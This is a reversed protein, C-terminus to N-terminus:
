KVVRKIPIKSLVIAVSTIVMLSVLLITSTLEPIIPAGLPFWTPKYDSLGFVLNNGQLSLDVSESGGGDDFRWYGVLSSQTCETDNLIRKWTESIENHTRSTNWFRVEDILGKYMYGYGLHGGVNLDAVEFVLGHSVDLNWTRDITKNVYFTLSESSRSFTVVIHYWADADWYDRNTSVSETTDVYMIGQDKRYMFWLHGDTFDFYLVWGGQSAWTETYCILAGAPHGFIADSGAQITQNPKIWLEVTLEQTTYVPSTCSAYDNMGDFQLCRNWPYNADVNEIGLFFVISVLFLITISTTAYKKM